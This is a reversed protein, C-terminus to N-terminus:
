TAMMPKPRETLFIATTSSWGAMREMIFMNRVKSWRTNSPRSTPRIRESRFSSTSFGSSMVTHYPAAKEYVSYYPPDGVLSARRQVSGLDPPLADPFISFMKEEPRPYSLIFMRYGFGSPGPFAGGSSFPDFGHPCFVADKVLDIGQAKASRGLLVVADGHVTDGLHPLPRLVDATQFRVGYVERRNKLTVGVAVIGPIEPLHVAAQAGVFVKGSHTIGEVPCADPHHDITHEVM